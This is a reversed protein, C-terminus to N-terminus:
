ICHLKLNVLTLNRSNDKSIDLLKIIDSMTQQVQLINGILGEQLRLSQILSYVIPVGQSLLICFNGRMKIFSKSSPVLKIFSIMLM